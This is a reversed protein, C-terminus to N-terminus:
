RASHRMFDKPRFGLVGLSAFYVSAGLVVLGSLMAARYTWHVTVWWHAPRDAAWLALAMAALAILLKLVFV